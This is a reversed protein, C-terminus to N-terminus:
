ASCPAGRSTVLGPSPLSIDVQQSSFTFSTSGSIAFRAPTAPSTSTMTTAAQYTLSLSSGTAPNGILIGGVDFTGASLTANLNTVVGDEIVLGPSALNVMVPVTQGPFAFSTSGSIAFRTPTAPTAPASKTQPMAAEAAQYSLSLSSGSSGGITVGALNFSSSTSLTADLTTLDGRIIKLGPASGSGLTLTIPTSGAVTTSLTGSFDFANTASVYNVTVGSTTFTTGAVTFSETPLTPSTLGTLSVGNANIVVYNAGGVTLQLNGLQPFSLTGQLKIDTAELQVDTLTFNAGLM